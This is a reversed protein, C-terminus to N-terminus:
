EPSGLQWLLFAVENATQDVEAATSLSSSHGSKSDYLLLVPRDSTTANQLAATMKRAHSPDVRTDGEGSILLAAPYKTGKQVHHYPSYAYLNRFQAPDSASGYETAWWRAISFREYRVMDILPYRGIAAAFLDPRQTICATVLLGGNSLGQIALRSPKTYNNDALWQGAAIFDDFSNQKKDLEGARHWAEGFENGGRINAVAYVGGRELWVGTEPSFTPLQAWNFGGYGYLLIAANGDKVLNKKHALFMSVRTGDKSKYWVQDVVVDALAAPTQPASIAITKGSAVSYSFFTTPTQFSTYSFCVIPSKWDSDITAVSGMGPLAINGSAKGNEDFLRLESHATNMYNVLLKGGALRFMQITSSDEPILTRWHEPEPHAADAVMITGNSAKWNTQIFIKDDAAEATFTAPIDKVLTKIEDQKRLDKFYIDTSGSAGHLVHMLLLSGDHSIGAVLIMQPGIGQGFILADQQPNTGLKHEYLRPGQDEFKVYYLRSRDPTMPLSWYIYRAEPLVDPLDKGTPVDYFHISLQDRGGRRVGYAILKGDESVNLLDLTETHDSSWISPDLLLKEPGSEADRVYLAAIEHSPLKKLIFYRGQRYIVRQAEEIDTLAYIDKRLADMEPRQSLLSSAYEQQSKIWAQTQPSSSDELWQYPDSVSIGHITEVTNISATTPPPPIHASQASAVTAAHTALVTVCATIHTLTRFAKSKATMGQMLVWGNAAAFYFLLASEM